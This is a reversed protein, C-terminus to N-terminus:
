WLALGQTPLTFYTIKSFLRRIVSYFPREAALYHAAAMQDTWARADVARHRRIPFCTRLRSPAQDEANASSVKRKKRASRTTGAPSALIVPSSM